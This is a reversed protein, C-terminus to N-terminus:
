RKSSALQRPRLDMQIPPSKELAVSNRPGGAASADKDPDVQASLLEAERTFRPIAAFTPAGRLVLPHELM